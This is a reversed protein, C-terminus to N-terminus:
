LPVRGAPGRGPRSAKALAQPRGLVLLQATQAGPHRDRLIGWLALGRLRDALVSGLFRARSAPQVRTLPGTMLAMVILSGEGGGGARKGAALVM